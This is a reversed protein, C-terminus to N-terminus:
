GQKDMEKKMQKKALPIAVKDILYQKPSRRKKPKGDDEVEEEADDDGESM